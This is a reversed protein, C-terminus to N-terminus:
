APMPQGRRARNAVHLAEDYVEGTQWLKWIISLWRNGLARYARPKPHGRALQDYYYARAWGSHKVSQMALDDAARRLPRSCAQRFEVRMQKGSRRTVPVTGATAQLVQASPFRQRNDGIAALLRAPTLPGSAGPFGRWWAAEPHTKFVQVIRKRLHNRQETLCRLRPLLLLITEVYGEEAFATPMPAQLSTYIHELKKQLPSYRQAKLFRALEARSLKRAAQPTPYAELFALFVLTNRTRFAHLATPYYKQLAWVLRNTERRQGRLATDYAKILQRLHVVTDSQRALPRCDPDRGRLLQALLYADGRDDKSRRPRRCSVITPLTVHIQYDQSVLWDILLGDPREINIAVDDLNDLLGRLEQFGKSDTTISFESLVRGDDALLCLDHKEVAWDIGLYHM